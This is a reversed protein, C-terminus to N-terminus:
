KLFVQTPWYVMNMGKNIVISDVSQLTHASCRCLHYTFICIDMEGVYFLYGKDGGLVRRDM